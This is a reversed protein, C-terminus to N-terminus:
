RLKGPQEVRTTDVEAPSRAPSPSAAASEQQDAPRQCASPFLSSLTRELAESGRCWSPSSAAEYVVASSQPQPSRRGCDGASEARPDRRCALLSCAANGWTNDSRPEGPGQGSGDNEHQRSPARPVLGSSNGVVPLSRRVEPSSSRQPQECSLMCLADAMSSGKSNEWAQESVAAGATLTALAEKARSFNQELDKHAQQLEELETHLAELHSVSFHWAPLRCLVLDCASLLTRPALRELRYVEVDPRGEELAPGLAALFKHAASEATCPPQVDFCDLGCLLTPM